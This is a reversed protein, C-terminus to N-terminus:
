TIEPLVVPYTLHVHACGGYWAQWSCHKSASVHLIYFDTKMRTLPLPVQVNKTPKM